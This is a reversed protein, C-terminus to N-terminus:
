EHTKLGERAMRALLTGANVGGTSDGNKALYEANELISKLANRMRRADAYSVWNGDRAAVMDADCGFDKQIEYRVLLPLADSM